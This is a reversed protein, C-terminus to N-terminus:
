ARDGLLLELPGAREKSATRQQLMLVEDYMHQAASAPKYNSHMHIYIYIYVCTYIYIYVYM